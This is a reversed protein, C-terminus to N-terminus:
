SSETTNKFSNFTFVTWIHGSQSGYIFTLMREQTYKKRTGQELKYYIRRFPHLGGVALTERRRWIKLTEYRHADWASAAPANPICLFDFDILFLYIFLFGGARAWRRKKISQRSITHTCDSGTSKPRNRGWNNATIQICLPLRNTRCLLIQGLYLKLPSAGGETEEAPRM